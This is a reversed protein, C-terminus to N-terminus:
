SGRPHETDAPLVRYADGDDRCLGLHAGSDWKVHVTGLADVMGVTGLAGPELRTYPDNCCILQIRTGRAPHQASV